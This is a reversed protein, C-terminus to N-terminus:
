TRCLKSTIMSISMIAIPLISLQSGLSEVPYIEVGGVEKQRLWYLFPVSISDVRPKSMIGFDM